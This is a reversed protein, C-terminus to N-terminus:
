GAGGPELPLSLIVRTGQGPESEIRLDGGVKEAREIMSQIGLGGESARLREQPIGVGDDAVVLHLHNAEVKVLFLRRM